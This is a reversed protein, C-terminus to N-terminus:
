GGLLGVISATLYCALLGGVMSRLGLRALDSRREPALAGIGGIQIAISGLNAFGCLAYTALTVSRPELAGANQYGALTAYGLFENLVIREGLVQGIPVADKWPVGILWACPANLWGVLRQLSVPEWGQGFWGFVQEQVLSFLHNLLAIVAVFAILMGMVNLSLKVGDTAGRCLADIGNTTHREIPPRAGSATESPATEPLMIKAIVLAAPASMVSATLLHGASLGFAVYAALVGGAITAMGGTMLAMLESETMRALYPRIVLPAETMGVFVNAAAALSESGSTRMARRMVWAAAQVLRQLVGWHYLLSSVASVLIITASVTIALIYAHDAGWQESLFAQDGLPGFVMKAGENAFGILRNVARQALDFGAHGLRSHLILVCFGAQLGLGWAVTRWPFRSRHRSLSWALSLFVLIGLLSALRSM